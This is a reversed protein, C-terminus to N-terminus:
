ALSKLEARIAALTIEPTGAARRLSVVHAGYADLRASAEARRAGAVTREVAEM